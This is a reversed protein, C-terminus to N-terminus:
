SVVLCQRYIGPANWRQNFDTITIEQNEDFPLLLKNGQFGILPSFHGMGSVTDYFVIPLCDRRIAACLSKIAIANNIPIGAEQALKYCRKEILQPAPDPETYFIVRRGFERLALAMAITFTGHKKTHRCATVITKSSVRKRFYKLIAWVTVPGCNGDLQMLPLPADEYKPFGKIM